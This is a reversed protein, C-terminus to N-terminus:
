LITGGMNHFVATEDSQGLLANEPETKMKM